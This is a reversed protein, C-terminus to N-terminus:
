VHAREGVAGRFRRFAAVAGIAAVIGIGFWVLHPGIFFELDPMQRVVPLVHQTFTQNTLTSDRLTPGLLHFFQGKLEAETTSSTPDWRVYAAYWPLALWDRPNQTQALHQMYQPLMAGVAFWTLLVGLKIASSRRPLLTGLLFSFSGLAITPPLVIAAWVAVTGPLDLGLHISPQLVHQAVATVCIALLLLVALGLCLLISAIYRGLVYAQTPVATTMLLEHTRRKLDRAVGDAAVFPVFLGFALLPGHLACALGWLTTWSPLLNADLRQACCELFWDLSQSSFRLSLFCAGLALAAAVWTARSALVRRLEWGVVATLPALVFHASAGLAPSKASAPAPALNRYM